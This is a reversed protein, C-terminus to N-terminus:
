GAMIYYTKDYQKYPKRECLKDVGWNGAYVTPGSYIYIIYINWKHMKRNGNRIGQRVKQRHSCSVHKNQGIRGTTGGRGGPLRRSEAESLLLSM